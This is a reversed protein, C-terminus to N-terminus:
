LMLNLVQDLCMFFFDFLSSSRALISTYTFESHRRVCGFSPCRNLFLLLWFQCFISSYPLRVVLSNFFFCEDLGPSPACVPLRPLSSKHCRQPQHVQCPLPQHLPCDWMWVCIFWSSCIRLSVCWVVWPQLALFYLRLGRISFVQPPQPRLLLFKWGWLLTQQLSGCPGLVYVCGGVWSDAGSPGLKSTPLSSLSQFGASVPALLKTGELVGEGCVVDCCLSM